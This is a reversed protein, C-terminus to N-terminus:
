GCKVKNRRQELKGRYDSHLVLAPLIAAFGLALAAAITGASAYYYGYALLGAIVLFVPRLFHTAPSIRPLDRTERGALKAKM